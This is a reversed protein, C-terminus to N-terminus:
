GQVTPLIQDLRNAPLSVSHYGGGIRLPPSSFEDHLRISSCETFWVIAVSATSSVLVKWGRLGAERYDTDSAAELRSQALTAVEQARILDCIAEDPEDPVWAATLEGARDLQALNVADRRNTKVRDGPRKPMLSPAILESGQDLEIIQRYPEYGRLGAEYCFHLKAPQKALKTLVSAPEASIDSFFGSKAM